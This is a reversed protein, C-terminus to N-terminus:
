GILIAQCVRCFAAALGTKKRRNRCASQPATARGQSRQLQGKSNKAARTDPANTSRSTARNFAYL